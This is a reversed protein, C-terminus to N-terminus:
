CEILSCGILHMEHIFRHRWGLSEGIGIRFYNEIPICANRKLDLAGLSPYIGFCRGFCFFSPELGPNGTAFDFPDIATGIEKSRAWLVSGLRDFSRGESPDM